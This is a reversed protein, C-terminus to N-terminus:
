ATSLGPEAPPAVPEAPLTLRFTAGHGPASVCAVSGGHEQAIQQTLALGLGTGQEKTSFFPEFLRPLDGPSVGPGDDELEVVALGESAGVSVRLRGGKPAMAERANRFLNLLAQRLQGEDGRVRPVQADFRREVSIGAGTLEPTLFELLDDVLECLDVSARATRPSRALALYQESIDTLRDIERAMATLLSLTEERATPEEFRAGGLADGLLEANLGISSLPNRIEHTIQASIRGIAALRESRLLRERQETLQKERERLSAAMANFEQALQGLEDQSGLSVQRAFDGRSIGQVGETLVRIPYLTRQAIGTALLGLAIAAFSLSIIAWASRVEARHVDNVRSAVRSELRTSLIQVERGILGEIQKLARGRQEVPDVAEAQDKVASAVATSPAPLPIEEVIGKPRKRGAADHSLADYLASAADNYVGYRDYLEALRKDMETLFELDSGHALKQAHGIVARASQVRDKMMKPFFVRTYGMLVRETARDKEALIRDTDREKNKHFSELQGVAKTLPLYCEGIIGLDGGLRHLSWISTIAVSGFTTM